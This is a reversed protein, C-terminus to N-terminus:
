RRNGLTHFQQARTVHGAVGILLDITDKLDIMLHALFKTQDGLGRREPQCHYFRQVDVDVKPAPHFERDTTFGVLKGSVLGVPGRGLLM